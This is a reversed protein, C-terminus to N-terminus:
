QADKSVRGKGGERAQPPRVGRRHHATGSQANDDMPEEQDEKKTDSHAGQKQTTQAEYKGDYEAAKEPTLGQITITYHDQARYADPKGPMGPQVGWKQWSESPSSRKTM